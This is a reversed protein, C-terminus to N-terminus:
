LESNLLTHTKSIIQQSALSVNGNDELLPTKALEGLAKILLGCKQFRKAYFENKFDFDPVLPELLDLEMAARHELEKTTNKLETARACIGELVVEATKMQEVAVDVRKEYEKAETLKKSYHHSAVLGAAAIAVFGGAAATAATTITALTAAGAAMGGGGAAISGGGLWALVANTAAAGHLSAIATGTSASALATVAGTVAAPAASAAGFAAVAGLAGATATGALATSANIELNGLENVTEQPIQIDDLIEYSKEKNKQEMDKLYALFRGVTNKLSNLRIVGFDSVIGKTKTEVRDYDSKANYYNKEANIKISQAEKRDQYAQVGVLQKAFKIFGM